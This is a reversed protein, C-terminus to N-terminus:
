LVATTRNLQESFKYLVYTVALTIVFGGGSPVSINIASNDLYCHYIM